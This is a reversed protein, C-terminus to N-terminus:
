TSNSGAAPVCRRDEQSTSPRSRAVVSVKDCDSNTSRFADNGQLNELALHAPSAARSSLKRGNIPTTPSITTQYTPSQIRMTSGTSSGGGSAAKLANHFPMVPAAARSSKRCVTIRM